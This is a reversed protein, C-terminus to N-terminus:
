FKEGIFNDCYQKSKEIEIKNRATWGFVLNGKKRFKQVRKNPLDSISYSIFDPKTLCNLLVNKLVYKKVLFMGDNKFGSSLQGRPIEPYNKKFWMLSKPSFSQVAYKGNYNELIKILAEETQGAKRDNKLEILIPVRDNVLELVDKFLPIGYNTDKLKLNKIENFICDKISKDVGTMRKLNDDHFVVVNGDELLHIDLEIPYGNECAREFALMSNEPINEEKSWLGRHAIPRKKLFDLNKM